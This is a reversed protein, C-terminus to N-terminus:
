LEPRQQGSEGRKAGLFRYFWKKAGPLQGRSRGRSWPRHWVGVEGLEGKVGPLRKEMEGVKAGQRTEVGGWM